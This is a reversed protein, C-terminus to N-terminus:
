RPGIARNLSVGLELHLLRVGGHGLLILKGVELCRFRRQGYSYELEVFNTKYQECRGNSAGETTVDTVHKGQLIAPGSTGWLEKACCPVKSQVARDLDENVKETSTIDRNEFAPTSIIM